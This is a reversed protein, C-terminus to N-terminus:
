NEGGNKVEDMFDSLSKYNMEKVASELLMVLEIENIKVGKDELLALMSEKAKNLKEKGHLDKYLQEVYRVTTAAVDRKTENDVYKNYRIKLQAAIVTIITTLIAPLYETLMQTFIEKM